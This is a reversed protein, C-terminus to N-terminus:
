VIVKWHNPGIANKSYSLLNSYLYPELSMSPLFEARIKAPVSTIRLSKEHNEETGGPFHLFLAEVLGHVSEKLDKGNWREDTM